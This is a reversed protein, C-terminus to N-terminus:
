PQSEQEHSIHLTHQAEKKRFIDVSCEYAKHWAWYQLYSMQRVAEDSSTSSHLVVLQVTYQLFLMANLVSSLVAM